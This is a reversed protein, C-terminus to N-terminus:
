AKESVMLLDQSGLAYPTRDIGGYMALLRLGAANLLKKIERVTYVAQSGLRREERGNQVFAYTTNLRSTQVDYHHDLMLTLDGFEYRQVQKKADGPDPRSAEWAVAQSDADAQGSIRLHPLLSEAAYATELVFHGGPRLSGAVAAVFRVNNEDSLYGFSNGMCFAADFSETLPVDCMDRNLWNVQVGLERAEMRASAIAEASIDIGTVRIGEGALLLSHRGLGCPVDLVSCGPGIKLEQVLFECEKHTAETPIARRWLELAIGQFFEEYWSEHVRTELYIHFDIYKAALKIYL